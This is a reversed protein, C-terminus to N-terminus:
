QAGSPERIMLPQEYREMGGFKSFDLFLVEVDEFGHRRYFAHAAASSELYIPLGLEDAKRKVCGLLASGAGQRQFAPDTHLMHLYVHPRGGVLESKRQVLGGFFMRCAEPSTGPGFELARAPLLCAEHTGYVHWKAFAVMRRSVSDIAQTYVATSDEQRMRILSDVRKQLADPPFPGPFLLPNLPNSAYAAAEITSARHLETNSVPHILFPM